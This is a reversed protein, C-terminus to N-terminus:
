TSANSSGGSAPSPSRLTTTGSSTCRSRARVSITTRAYTSSRASSTSMPPTPATAHDDPCIACGTSATNRTVGCGGTTSRAIIGYYRCTMAVNGTVEEAHQIIALRRRVERPPQPESM